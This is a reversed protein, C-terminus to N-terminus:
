TRGARARPASPPSNSKTKPFPTPPACRACKLALVLAGAYPFTSLGRIEGFDSNYTTSKAIDPKRFTLNKSTGMSLFFGQRCAVWQAECQSISFRSWQRRSTWNPSSLDMTRAPYAACLRAMTRWMAMFRSQRLVDRLPLMLVLRISAGVESVNRM